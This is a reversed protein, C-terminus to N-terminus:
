KKGWNEGVGYAPPEARKAPKSRAQPSPRLRRRLESIALRIACIDEPSAGENWRAARWRIFAAARLDDITAARPCADVRHAIAMLDDISMGGNAYGDFSACFSELEDWPADDSPLNALTISTM